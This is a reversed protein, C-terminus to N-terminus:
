TFDNEHCKSYKAKRAINSIESNEGIEYFEFHESNLSGYVLYSKDVSRGGNINRKLPQSVTMKGFPNSNRFCFKSEIRSQRPTRGLRNEINLKKWTFYQCNFFFYYYCEMIRTAIVSSNNSHRFDGRDFEFGRIGGRRATNPRGPGIPSIRNIKKKKKTRKFNGVLNGRIQQFKWRPKTQHRRRGKPITCM